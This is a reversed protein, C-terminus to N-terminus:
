FAPKVPPGMQYSIPFWGKPSKKVRKEGQSLFISRGLLLDKSSGKKRRRKENEEEKRAWAKQKGKLRPCRGTEGSQKVPRKRSSFTRSKKLRKERKGKGRGPGGPGNGM